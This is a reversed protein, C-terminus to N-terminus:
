AAQLQVIKAVADEVESGDFTDGVATVTVMTALDGTRIVLLAVVVEMTSGDSANITYRVNLGESQDAGVDIDNEGLTGEVTAGSSEGFLQKLAEDICTIVAPDSFPELAAVAADEDVFVKTEASFNAGDGADLSGVTFDDTTHSALEDGDDTFSPDCDSIPSDADEDGPPSSSWGDPFDSVTLDVADARAQAADDAGPEDTTTTVDVATTTTSEAASDEPADSGGSAGCAALLVVAVAVLAGLGHRRSANVLDGLNLIAADGDQGM